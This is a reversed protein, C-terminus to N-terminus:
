SGSPRGGLRRLVVEAADRDLRRDVADDGLPVDFLALHRDDPKVFLGLTTSSITASMDTMSASISTSSVSMGFTFSPWFVFTVISARGSRVNVAFTVSIPLLGIM